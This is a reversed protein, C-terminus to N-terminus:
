ITLPESKLQSILTPSPNQGGNETLQEMHDNAISYIRTINRRRNAELLADYENEEHLLKILAPTLELIILLLRVGWAMFFADWGREPDNKLEGLAIYQSLLDDTSQIALAQYDDDIRKLESEKEALTRTYDNNAGELLKEHEKLQSQLLRFVPGEGPKGTGAQVDPNQNKSNLVENAVRKQLVISEAELDKVRKEARALKEDYKEKALEKKALHPKNKENLTEKQQQKIQQEFIRLELPVSVVLGILVALCLRVTIMLGSKRTVSVIERDILMILGAYVIAVLYVTKTGLSTKLAYSSSFFAFIGVILVFLGFGAQTKHAHDSCMSILNRDTKALAILPRTFINM